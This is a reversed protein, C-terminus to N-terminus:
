VSVDRQLVIRKVLVAPSGQVTGVAGKRAATRVSIEQVPVQEQTLFIQMSADFESRSYLKNLVGDKTGIKYLGDKNKELVVGILNRLDAKAGDVYPIPIVVNGGIDVEPYMADSIKKMRNAQKILNEKAEKRTLFINTSKSVLMYKGSQGQETEQEEVNM